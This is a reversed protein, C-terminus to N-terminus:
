RAEVLRVGARELNAAQAPFCRPWLELMEQSSREGEVIFVSNCAARDDGQTRDWWAILTHGSRIHIAFAGQACESGFDHLKLRDGRSIGICACFLSGASIGYRSVAARRPALGADLWPADGFVDFPAGGRPTAPAGGVHHLGHGQGNWCGFYYARPLETPAIM